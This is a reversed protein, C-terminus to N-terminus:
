YSRSPSRQRAWTKMVNSVALMTVTSVAAGVILLVWMSATPELFTPVAAGVLVGNFGFLGQRLSNEDADLLM